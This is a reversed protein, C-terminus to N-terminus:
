RQYAYLILKPRTERHTFSSSLHNGDGLYPSLKFLLLSLSSALFFFAESDLVAVIMMMMMMM